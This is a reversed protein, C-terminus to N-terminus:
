LLRGAVMEAIDMVPLRSNRKISKKCQPCATVITGAGTAAFADAVDGAVRNEQQADLTANALSGGCCYAHKRRQRPERLKAMSRIVSRPERYIGLGRGLECPDHYTVTDEGNGVKIRGEAILRQIYQSHHVVEIGDLDLNYDEKFVKMCIPCSTVLTTIGSSRFLDRNSQMLMSAAEIEGTLKLPRGCCVGGNRDAWWVQEGAAEFIRGMSSMIPASLLTMCGAFYGVKGAGQSRDVGKTYSYRDPLPAEARAARSNLRLRNLDIHVPCKVECRGCMFCNDEVERTLKGYRRDRLFYVSQVNNVDLSSQLQCPDICIGCRPCAQIQFNDAKSPKNKSRIRYNKLFIHPVETFIHMYRSYPMTAFFLGLAISYIWWAPLEMYRLVEWGLVDNLFAGTAKTMFAGTHHLGCTVSEAFLRAPFIVWLTSMAIRDGVIHRTKKKMGLPKSFFRKVWAIAVGSLVLLLLGDMLNAYNFGRHFQFPEEPFFYRFFVHVHPLNVADKLYATTELKGVVILLFWGFALSMHMYGLLPNVKFISKHILCEEVVEKMAKLSRVTFISNWFLKKDSKTLELFWKVYRYVVVSFLYVVGATFPIVFPDFYKM